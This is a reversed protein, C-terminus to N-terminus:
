ERIDNAIKILRRSIDNPRYEHLSRVAKMIESDINASKVREVQYLIDGIDNAHSYSMFDMNNYKIVIDDVLGYVNHVYKKHEKICDFKYPGMDIGRKTLIGLSMGNKAVIRITM